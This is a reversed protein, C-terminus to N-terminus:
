IVDRAWLVLQIALKGFAEDLAAAVAAAETTASPATARFVKAGVVRGGEGLIRASFEVNATPDPAIAM